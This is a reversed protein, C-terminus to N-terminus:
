DYEHKGTIAVGFSSNFYHRPGYDHHNAAYGYQNVNHILSAAQVEEYFYHRGNGARGSDAEPCCKYRSYDRCVGAGRTYYHRHEQRHSRTQYFQSAAIRNGDNGSDVYTGM